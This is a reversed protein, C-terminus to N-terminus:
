GIATRVLTSLRALVNAQDIFAGANRHATLLEQDLDVGNGDPRTGRPGMEVRANEPDTSEVPLHQAHTRVLSAQAEGLVGEFALDRRRYGPTDANAVNGAIVAERAKRFRMAVQLAGMAEPGFSPMKKGERGASGQPDFSGIAVRAIPPLWLLRWALAFAGDRRM